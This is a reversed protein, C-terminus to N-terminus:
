EVRVHLEGQCSFSFFSGDFTSPSQVLRAVTKQRSPIVPESLQAATRQTPRELDSMPFVAAQRCACCCDTARIKRQELPLTQQASTNASTVAAPVDSLLADLGRGLGRKKMNM